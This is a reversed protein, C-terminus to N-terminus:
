PTPDEDRNANEREELLLRRQVGMIEPMLLDGFKQNAEQTLQPLIKLTKKGTDTRYFQILDEIESETYYYDYLEFHIAAMEPQLAVFTEQLLASLRGYIRDIEDEFRAQEEPPLNEWNPVMSRMMSPFQEAMYGFVNNAMEASLGELDIITLLENIKERKSDSITAEPPSEAQALILSPPAIASHSPTAMLPASALISSVGLALAALM